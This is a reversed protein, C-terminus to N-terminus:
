VAAAVTETRIRVSRSLWIRDMGASRGNPLPPQLSFIWTIQATSIRMRKDDPSVAFAMRASSSGPLDRIHVPAGDPQMRMQAQGNLYYVADSTTSALPPPSVDDGVHTQGYSRGDQGVITLISGGPAAPGSGTFIVAFQAQNSPPSATPSSAITRPASAAAPSNSINSSTNGSCAAGLVFASAVLALRTRM